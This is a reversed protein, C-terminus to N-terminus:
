FYKLDGQDDIWFVQVLESTGAETDLAIVKVDLNRWNIDSEDKINTNYYANYLEVLDAGDLSELNDWVPVLEVVLIKGDDLTYREESYDLERWDTDKANTARCLEAIMSKIGRQVKKNDSINDLQMQFYEM